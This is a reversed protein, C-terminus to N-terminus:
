YHAFLIIYDHYTGTRSAIYGSYAGRLQAQLDGGYFHGFQPADAEVPATNRGFGQEFRCLYKLVNAVGFIIADRYGISLHIKFIHNLAAAIHCATHALANLKQKTFILNIDDFAKALKSGVFLQFNGIFVTLFGNVARRMDNQSRASTCALQWMDFYIVLLYDAVALGHSQLLLGLFQHHHAGACNPYFKGVEIGRDTCFYRNHLIQGADHGVFVLFDRLLQFFRILFHANFDQGIGAYFGYIGGAAAAFYLYLCGGTSFSDSTIHHKRCYAYRGIGLIDAQFRCAYFGVFAPNQYILKITGIHRAYIGDAINGGARSQRVHGRGLANNTYLFNGSVM